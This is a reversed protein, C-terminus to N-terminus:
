EEGCDSHSPKAVDQEMHAIPSFSESKKKRRETPFLFVYHYHCSLLEYLYVFLDNEFQRINCIYHFFKCIDVVFDVSLNIYM